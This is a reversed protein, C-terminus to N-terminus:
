SRKRAVLLWNPTDKMAGGGYAPSLNDLKLALWAVAANVANSLASGVLPTRRIWNLHWVLQQAVTAIAGGLPQVDCVEFGADQALLRLGYCTFRFFDNPEEHLPNTQPATLVLHGGPRLVRHAEHLLKAPASVHELVQTCLVTDFSDSTFAVAMASGYVDARSGGAPTVGFDLGIWRRARAGLLTQYPKMGCGLDLVDGRFLDKVGALGDRRLQDSIKSGWGWPINVANARERQM